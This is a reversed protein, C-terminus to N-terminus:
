PKRPVPTPEEPPEETEDVDEIIRVETGFKQYGRFRIENRFQITQGNYNSTLIVEARSPLLYPRENITVWDYDILSTAAAVPFGAPIETAISEMRLVRDLERDIWVRGRYGTVVTNSVAGAAKITQHSNQKKVEFQYVITRRGRLLDTDVAEFKAQSEEKFLGALMSVYEGTSSTGGLQEYSQGEKIEANPPLGNVALVKYEEGIQARFSVAITLRDSVSWNNTEGRAYSRTILQKVIFDPMANSAALTVNRTRALLDRAEAEPPLASAVPNVRRRAAEELTRRLLADNGSKSAVVSRVGQTLEFGIGRRRIEEVIEDRKEPHRPLQQVMRVLEQSTIPADNSQAQAPVVQFCCLFVLMLVALPLKITHRQFFQYM